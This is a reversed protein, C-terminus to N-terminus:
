WWLMPGWMLSGVAAGAVVGLAVDSSDYRRRHYYPDNVYVVNSPQMVQTGDPLAIIQGPYGGGVRPYSSTYVINSPGGVQIPYHHQVEQQGPYMVTANYPPPNGSPPLITRAEEFAIQWARMDDADEACLKLEGDKIVLCLLCDKSKGDPPTADVSTGTTIYKCVAPVVIRAEPEHSDPNEFYRLDGNQYLVFWEKKWRKLVSSQRWLWGAKAIELSAM